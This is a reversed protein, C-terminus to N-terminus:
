AWIESAVQIYKLAKLHDDMSALFAGKHTESMPKGTFFVRLGNKTM